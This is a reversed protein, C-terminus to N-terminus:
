EGGAREANIKAAMAMAKQFLDGSDVRVPGKKQGNRVDQGDGENPLPKATKQILGVKTKGTAAVNKAAAFPTSGPKVIPLSRSYADKVLEAASQGGRYFKDIRSPSANIWAAMTEELDQREEETLEVKAEALYKTVQEQGDAILADRQAEEQKAKGSELAELKAQLAEVDKKSVYGAKAANQELWKIAQKQEATLEEGDAGTTAPKAEAGKGQKAADRLKIYETVIQEALEPSPNTVGYKKFLKEYNSLTGIRSQAENFGKIADDATRYSTRDNVKLFPTSEEGSGNEAGANEQQEDAVQTVLEEPM